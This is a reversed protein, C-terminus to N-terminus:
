PMRDGERGDQWMTSPIAPFGAKGRCTKQRRATTEALSPHGHFLALAGGIVLAAWLPARAGFAVLLELIVRSVAFRAEVAPLPMEAVDMAGGLVMVIPFAVPLIWIAPPGLFAGLLGVAVIAVVHDWGFLPHAFGSILGRQVSADSHAHAAGAIPCILIAAM